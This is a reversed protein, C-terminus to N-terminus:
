EGADKKAAANRRAAARKQQAGPPAKNEPARNPVNEAPLWKALATKVPAHEPASALNHWENPDTKVDYLEEDGNAYRIYRWQDTRVCHNNCDYTSVAPRTWEATPNELLPKISVGQLNAPTPLGALDCLTPFLSFSEIVRHSIVGAAPTLGPVRWLYPVRTAEEWLVAKGIHQKEGLHYGHDAMVIVITNDAYDSAALADLIIGMQADTFAIAALYAQVVSKWRTTGEDGGKKWVLNWRNGDATELM